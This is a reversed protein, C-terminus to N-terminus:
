GDTAGDIHLTSLQDRVLRCIAAVSRHAEWRSLWTAEAADMFERFSPEDPVALVEADHYVDFADAWRCVDEVTVPCSVSEGTDTM